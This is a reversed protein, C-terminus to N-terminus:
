LVSVSGISDTKPPLKSALARIKKDIAVVRKNIAEAEAQLAAQKARAVDLARWAELCGRMEADFACPGSATTTKKTRPRRVSQNKPM